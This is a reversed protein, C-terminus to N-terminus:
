PRCQGRQLSLNPRSGTGARTQGRFKTPLLTTIHLLSTSSAQATEEQPALGPPAYHGRHPAASHDSARSGLVRQGEQGPKCRAWLLPAQGSYRCGSGSRGIVLEKTITRSPLSSHTPLLSALPCPLPCSHAPSQTLLPLQTQHGCSWIGVPRQKPSARGRSELTQWGSQKGRGM